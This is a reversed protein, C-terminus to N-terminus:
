GDPLEAKKRPLGCYDRLQNETFRVTQHGLKLRQLTGDGVARKLTIEAVGLVHAAQAYSFLGAFNPADM